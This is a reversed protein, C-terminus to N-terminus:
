VCVYDIGKIKMCQSLIEKIGTQKLISVFIFPITIVNTWFCFSSDSGVDPHEGYLKSIINEAGSIVFLLICIIMGIKTNKTKKEMMFVPVCVAALRLIVSLIEFGSFTEGRLILEFLIPIVTAGAGTFVTIYVLTTFRYAAMGFVNSCIAVVAYVFAFLFTPLNLTVEGKALVFFYLMALSYSLFIYIELSAKVNATDEVYKKKLLSGIGGFVAIMLVLLYGM